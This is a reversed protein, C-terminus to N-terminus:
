RQFTAKVNKLIRVTQGEEASMGDGEVSFRKGELHVRGATHIGGSLKDFDLANATIRYGDGHAEVVADTSFSNASFDYVGRDASLSLNHRPVGLRVARLEARDEGELFDARAAALTWTTVGNEKQVVRIGEIFSGSPANREGEYERNMGRTVFVGAFLLCILGISLAKKM